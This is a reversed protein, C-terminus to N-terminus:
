IIKNNKKNLKVVNPMIHTKAFINNVYKVYLTGISMKLVIIIELLNLILLNLVM